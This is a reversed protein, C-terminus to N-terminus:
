PFRDPSLLADIGGDVFLTSGHVYRAGDSLLWAVVEVIDDPEGMRGLPIPLGRILDGTAPDDLGEQLLPTRFPGPAVANLRIARDGFAQARRRVAKAIAVKSAAYAVAPHTDAAISLAAAEDGDLCAQALKGDAGPTLTTSNSCIMVAAGGGGSALADVVGDLVAVAGFYNIAVIKESPHQPGLGACPVLGDLVGDCRDLIGAVAATRGGPTSLDAGIEVSHLDVTIVKAGDARLRATLARGLGSAAGTVAYASM